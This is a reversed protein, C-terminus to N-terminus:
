SHRGEGRTRNEVIALGLRDDERVGEEASWLRVVGYGAQEIRKLAGEVTGGQWVSDHIVILGGRCVLRRALDFEAWVHEETHLSDLLAADYREGADLAARMGEISGTARPEICAKMPPPLANWLEEREPWAAPDLTVVRGGDRHAVASALCAASIGRATGCEIVRVCGNSRILYHLTAFLPFTTTDAVHASTGDTTGYFSWALADLGHTGVWARFATLFQQYSDPPKPGALPRPVRAYRGQMEPYKKKAGGNFHLVRAPHEGRNAAVRGTTTDFSVDESLLQVNYSRDLEVGARNRALALNFLFQNRWWVWSTSEMWQQAHDMARITADLELMATRGAAFIGDNVVLPFAAEEGTISLLREDADGGDYLLRLADGVTHMGSRSTDRCALITQPPLADLAAFLPALSTTVLMDADLCLFQRADVVRAASYLVAKVSMGVHAIPRCRLMTAGYKAAVAECREDPNVGFVVIGADSCGGNAAFSGLMDDLLTEFGPSVVTVICRDLPQMAAPLIEARGLCDAVPAAAAVAGDDVEPELWVAHAYNWRTTRVALELRQAGAIDATLARPASGAAVFPASAVLRGDAYVFFDAYGWGPPVDGNIAVACRFASYRGDLNFTLRAPPHTSLARTYDRDRIRVRRGDYGLDGRTGLQGYGVTANLPTITDLEM